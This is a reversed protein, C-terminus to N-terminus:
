WIIIKFFFERIKPLLYYMKSAMLGKIVWRGETYYLVDTYKLVIEELFKVLERYLLYRKKIIFNILKTVQLHWIM